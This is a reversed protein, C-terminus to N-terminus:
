ETVEDEKIDYIVARQAVTWYITCTRKETVTNRTLIVLVDKENKDFGKVIFHLKDGETREEVKDDIVYRSNNADDVYVTLENFIISLEIKTKPNYIWKKLKKNYTGIVVSNTRFVSPQAKAFTTALVIILMLLLKKMIKLKQKIKKIHTRWVIM